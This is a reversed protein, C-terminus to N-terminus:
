APFEDPKDEEKIENGVIESKVEVVADSASELDLETQSSVSKDVANGNLNNASLPCENRGVDSPQGSRQDIQIIREPVIMQECLSGPREMHEITEIRRLPILNRFSLPSQQSEDPFGAFGEESDVFMSLNSNEFLEIPLPQESPLESHLSVPVSRAASIKIRKPPQPKTRGDTKEVSPIKGANKLSNYKYRLQSVTKGMMIESIKKCQPGYEMLLRKFKELDEDTWIAKLSSSKPTPREQKQSASLSPTSKEEVPVAESLINPPTPPVASVELIVASSHDCINEGERQLPSQKRITKCIKKSDAVVNPISAAKRKKSEVKPATVPPFMSLDWKEKMSHYKWRLQKPSKSRIISSIKQYDTGHVMLLRKFHELEVPSWYKLSTESPKRRPTKPRPRALKEKEESSIFLPDAASVPLKNDSHSSTASVNDAGSVPALNEFLEEPLRFTKPPESIYTVPLSASPASISNSCSIHTVKENCENVQSVSKGVPLLPLNWENKMSNYKYRLQYITKTPMFSAILRYQTGYTMLLQKFQEVEEDTWPIKPNRSDEPVVEIDQFEAKHKTRHYKHRLQERTKTPMEQSMRTFDSGYKCVLDKFLRNEEETWFEKPARTGVSFRQNNKLYVAYKLRCQSRNRTGLEKSITVWDHTGYKEILQLLKEEEEPMWNGRSIQKQLLVELHTRVQVVSRNQLTNAIEKYSKGDNLMKKMLKSEESTFRGKKLRPELVYTWHSHIQTYSRHPFHCRINKWFQFRSDSKSVSDMSICLNHLLENEERTWPKNKGKKQTTVYKTFCMFGSRKTSMESAIQDWDQENYKKVLSKLEAVEQESFEGRTLTPSGTLRWIREYDDPTFRSSQTLGMFDVPINWDKTASIRTIEKIEKITRAICHIEEALGMNNPDSKLRDEADKLCKLLQEVRKAKLQKLINKELFAADHSLIRRVRPLRINMLQNTRVIELLDPNRDAPFRDKTKFYPAGFRYFYTRKQHGTDASDTGKRRKIRRIRVEETSFTTIKRELHALKRKLNLKEMMLNKADDHLSRISTSNLRILQNLRLVEAKINEDQIFNAITNDVETSSPEVNETALAPQEIAEVDVFYVDSKHATSLEAHTLDSWTPPEDFEEFRSPSENSNSFDVNQLTHFENRLNEHDRLIRRDEETLSHKQEDLVIRVIDDVNPSCKFGDFANYTLLANEDM